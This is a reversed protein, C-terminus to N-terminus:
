FGKCDSRLLEEASLDIYFPDKLSSFTPVMGATCSPMDYITGCKSKQFSLVAEEARDNLLSM